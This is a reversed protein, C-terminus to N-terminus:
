VALSIDSTLRPGRRKATSGIIIGSACGAPFSATEQIYMFMKRQDQIAMPAILKQGCRELPSFEMKVVVTAIGQEGGIVSGVLGPEPPPISSCTTAAIHTGM